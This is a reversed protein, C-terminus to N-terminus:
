FNYTLEFGIQRKEGHRLYTYTKGSLDITTDKNLLNKAYINFDFNKMKYGLNTNIISYSKQFAKNNVYTYMKGQGILTLSGYYNKYNVNTGISYTYKPTNPTIKGAFSKKDSKTNFEKIKSKVYGYNLFYMIYENSSYKLDVEFGQSNVKSANTLLPIWTKKKSEQWYSIQMDKHDTKFAALNINLQNNLFLMRTGIEYNYLTEKEYKSDDYNGLTSYSGPKYGKVITTYTTFNQNIKYNASIKPSVDSDTNKASKKHIKDDISYNNKSYILGAGLSLKKTLDYKINTFIGLSKEKIDTNYKKNTKLNDISDFITKDVKYNTGILLSTKDTNLNYRLEQSLTDRKLINKSHRKNISQGDRDLDSDTKKMRFNPIYTLYSKSDIYYKVKLATSQIKRKNYSELDEVVEYKNLKGPKYAWLPAFKKNQENFILSIDLDDSPTTRLHIKTNLMKSDKRNKNLYNNKIPNAKRKYNAMLSIYFKDRIIPTSLYAGLSMMKNNGFGIKVKRILTNNPVRTKISIVGGSAHGGYLTGQPGKLVEISEVDMMDYSLGAFDTTYVGDIDLGVNTNIVFFGVNTVGRISVAYHQFHDHIALNPIYGILDKLNSIKEDKIDKQDLINVTMGLDKLKYEQKSSKVITDDLTNIDKAFTFVNTILIFIILYKLKM